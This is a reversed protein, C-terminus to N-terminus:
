KKDNMIGYNVPISSGSIGSHTKIWEVYEDHTMNSTVGISGQKVQVEM